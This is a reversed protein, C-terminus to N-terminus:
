ILTYLALTGIIFLVAVPVHGSGQTFMIDKRQDCGCNLM